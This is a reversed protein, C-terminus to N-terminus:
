FFFFFTRDTQMFRYVFVEMLCLNLLETGIANREEQSLDGLSGLPKGLVYEMVLVHKTSLHRYVHPVTVKIGSDTKPLLSAFYALSEAEREYDCEQALEEQAVEITKDLYLGKPLLSSFLLLSKLNSLDSM